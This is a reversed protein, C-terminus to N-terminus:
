GVMRGVDGDDWWWQRQRQGEGAPMQEEELCLDLSDV